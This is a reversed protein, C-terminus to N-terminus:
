KGLCCHLEIKKKLIKFIKDVNKCNLNYFQVFIAAGPTNQKRDFAITFFHLSKAYKISELQLYNSGLFIISKKKNM